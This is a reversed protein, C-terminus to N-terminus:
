ATAGDPHGPRPAPRIAPTAASGPVRSRTVTFRPNQAVITTRGVSQRLAGLYPLHSNYVLWLEGAPALARRAAHLMRFAVESDRATGRHFPPNCVVADVSGDGIGELVDTRRVTVRDGCGNRETTATASRCAAASEDVALVEVDPHQRALLTALVGTGCGLDVVTRADPPLQPLVSALFRTGADVNTGGFAAGHACVQVDLDEDHSCRPYSLAPVGRPQAAMLVRSKQQGLSASVHGFHRLLVRNMGHTMHKVRGGALLTVDSRAFRAVAEAIEDLAALSKPLRLVVLTAGALLPESLESHWAVAVGAATAARDVQREDTLLDCHVRLSESEAESELQRALPVVLAGTVDDLVVVRELSASSAAVERLLIAAVPDGDPISRASSPDSPPPITM